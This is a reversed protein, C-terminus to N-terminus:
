AGAGEEVKKFEGEVLMYWTNELIATGDVM